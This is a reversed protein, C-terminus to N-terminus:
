FEFIKRCRGNVFEQGSSCVLPADFINGLIELESTTSLRESKLQPIESTTSSFEVYYPM